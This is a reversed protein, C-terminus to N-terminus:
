NKLHGHLLLMASVPPFTGQAWCPLTGACMRHQEARPWPALPTQPLFLSAAVRRAFDQISPVHGPCLRLPSHVYRSTAHSPGVNACLSPEWLRRRTLMVQPARGPCYLGPDPIPSLGPMIDPTGPHICPVAVKSSRTGLRGRPERSFDTGCGPSLHHTPVWAPHAAVEGGGSHGATRAMRPSHSDRLRPLGESCPSPPVPKLDQRELEFELRVEEPQMARPTNDFM